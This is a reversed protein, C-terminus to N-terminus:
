PRPTATPTRGRSTPTVLHFSRGPFAALLDAATRFWVRHNPQLRHWAPDDRAYYYRATRGNSTVFLGQDESVQNAVRVSGPSATPTLAVGPTADAEDDDADTPATSTPRPDLLPLPTPDLPTATTGPAASVGTALPTLSASTPPTLPPEDGAAPPVVPSAEIPEAPATAERPSLPPPHAGPSPADAPGTEVTVTPSASAAGRGPGTATPLVLPLRTPRRVSTPSLRVLTAVPSPTAEYEVTLHSTAGSSCALGLVALLLGLLVPSRRNTM